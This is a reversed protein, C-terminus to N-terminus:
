PENAVSGSMTLPKLMPSPILAHNPAISRIGTKLYSTVVASGASGRRTGGLMLVDANMACCAMSGFRKAHTM